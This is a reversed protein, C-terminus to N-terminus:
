QIERSTLWKSGPAIINSRIGWPALFTALSKGIAVAGAKSASYAMGATMFRNFAAISAVTIVQSSRVDDAAIGDVSKRERLRGGREKKGLEYGRRANAKDLLDLFATTVGMVATTNIAFTTEWKDWEGFLIKQVDEIREADYVAKHNPGSVGANNILVDVYGIEQRVREAAAKVSEIDTVDCQLPIVINGTSDLSSAASKLVDLRRGIIYIKSANTRLLASAFALGIGTGGGTVVTVLGNATFIDNPNFKTAEM